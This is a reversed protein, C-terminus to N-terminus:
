VISVLGCVLSSRRMLGDSGVANSLRRWPMWCIKTAFRNPWFVIAGAKMAKVTMPIDGHGPMLIVPIHLNSKALEIQFDVGSLGPRRIDLVLCSPVDPRKSQLLESASGFVEVRLGVSELLNALGRRLSADDDIVSVIPQEGLDSPSTPRGTV